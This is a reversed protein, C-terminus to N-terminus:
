GLWRSILHANYGVFRLALVLQIRTQAILAMFRVCTVLSHTKHPIVYELRVYGVEIWVKIRKIVYLTYGKKPTPPGLHNTIFDVSGHSWM